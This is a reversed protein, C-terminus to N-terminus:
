TLKDIVLEEPLCYNVKYVKGRFWIPTLSLNTDIKLTDKDYNRTKLKAPSYINGVLYLLVNKYKFKDNLFINKFRNELFDTVTNSIKEKIEQVKLYGSKKLKKFELLYLLYWNCQCDVTIIFDVSKPTTPLKLSNYYDDVKIGIYDKKSLRENVKVSVGSDQIEYYLYKKLEKDNSILNIM